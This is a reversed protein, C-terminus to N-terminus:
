LKNYDLNIFRVLKKFEEFHAEKVEEAGDLYAIAKLFAQFQRQMRFGYLNQARALALTYPELRKAAEKSIIVVRKAKPFRIKELKEALHKESEIFDLIEIRTTIDYDYSVPIVRSLFGIKNWRHRKDEFIEPTISTILGVSVDLKKKDAQRIKTAYTSINVVGEEIMAGMFYVFTNVTSEKRALCSILDPIVIHKYKEEHFDMLNDSDRIIGYATADTTYFIGDTKLCYKRILTTKGCEPNAVFIASLPKEGKVYGSALIVQLIRELVTVNLMKVM